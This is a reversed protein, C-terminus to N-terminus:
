RLNRPQVTSTLSARAYRDSLPAARDEAVPYVEKASGQSEESASRAVLTIRVVLIAASGTVGNLGICNPTYDNDVNYAWNDAQKSTHDVGEQFGAGGVSCAASIQLDEIGEAVVELSDADAQSALSAAAYSPNSNSSTWTVLRPPDVSNDIAFHRPKSNIGFRLVRAGVGYGGNPFKDGPVNYPSSPNFNLKWRDQQPQEVPDQTLQLLVCGKTTGPQWFLIYDNEVFDASSVFATSSPTPMEKTIRRSGGGNDGTAAYTVSLSDVGDGSCDVPNHQYLNCDNYITIASFPSRGNYQLIEGGSCGAFGYGAMRIQRQLYSMAGWLNEQTTLTTLQTEYAKTQGSMMYFLGGSLILALLMAVMLEVITVGAQKIESLKTM